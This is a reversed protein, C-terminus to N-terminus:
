SALDGIGKDIYAASKIGLTNILEAIDFSNHPHSNYLFRRPLGGNKNFRLTCYPLPGGERLHLICLQIFAYPGVDEATRKVNFKLCCYPLANNAIPM